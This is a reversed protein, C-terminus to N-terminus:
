EEEMMRRLRDVEDAFGNATLWSEIQLVPAGAEVLASVDTIDQRRHARLKLAFLAEIPVVVGRPSRDFLHALGYDEAVLYDVTVGEVYIPIDSKFTTIRGHLDFAERERVLFDVDKTARPCGWAGVALGGILLHSIGARSLAESALSEAELIRDSVVDRTLELSPYDPVGRGGGRSVKRPTV